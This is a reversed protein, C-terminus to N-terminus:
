SPLNDATFLSIFENSSPAFPIPRRLLYAQLNVQIHKDAAPLMDAIWDSQWGSFLRHRGHTLRSFCNISKFVSAVGLPNTNPLTSSQLEEDRVRRQLLNEM